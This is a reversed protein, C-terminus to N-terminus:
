AAHAMETDDSDVHLALQPKAAHVPTASEVLTWMRAVRQAAPICSVLAVGLVIAVAGLVQFLLASIALEQM